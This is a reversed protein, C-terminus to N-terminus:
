GGGCRCRSRRSPARADLAQGLGVHRDAERERQVGGLVGQARLDHRDVLAVRQALNQARALGMVLSLATLDEDLVHHQGPDVVAVRLGDLEGLQEVRLDVLEVQDRVVRGVRDVVPGRAVRDVRELRRELLVPQPRGDAEGAAAVDVGGAALPLEGARADLMADGHESASIRGSERDSPRDGQEREVEEERVPAVVVDRQPAGRAPAHQPHDDADREPEDHQRQEAAGRGAGVPRAEQHLLREREVVHEHDRHQEAREGDRLRQLGVHQREPDRDRQHQPRHEDDGAHGQQLEKVGREVHHARQQDEGADPQRDIRRCRRPSRRPGSSARAAGRAAPRCRTGPGRPDDGALVAARTAVGSSAASSATASASTM